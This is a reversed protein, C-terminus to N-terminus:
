SFRPANPSIRYCCIYLRWIFLIYLLFGQKYRHFGCVHVVHPCYRPFNVPLFAIMFKRLFFNLQVSIHNGTYGQLSKNRWMFITNKHPCFTVFNHNLSSLDYSVRLSWESIRTSSSITRDQLYNCVFVVAIDAWRIRTTSFSGLTHSNAM